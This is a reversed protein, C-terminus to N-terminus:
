PQYFAPSIFALFFLSSLYTYHICLNSSLKPHQMHIHLLVWIFNNFTETHFHYWLLNYSFSHHKHQHIWLIYYAIWYSSRIFLRISQWVHCSSNGPSISCIPLIIYIQHILFIHYGYLIIRSIITCDNSCYTTEHDSFWESNSRM